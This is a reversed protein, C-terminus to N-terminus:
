DMNVRAKLRPVMWQAPVGVPGKTSEQFKRVESEADECAARPTAGKGYCTGEILATAAKVISTGRYTVLGLRTFRVEYHEVGDVCLIDM